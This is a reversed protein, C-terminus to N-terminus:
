TMGPPRDATTLALRVANGAMWANWLRAAPPRRGLHSGSRRTVTGRWPSRKSGTPSTDPAARPMRFEHSVSFWSCVADRWVRAAGAQYALGSFVEDYRREDVRGELASWERLLEEAKAAGEYHSDYIYQIVTKGSHLRHTYPVHHMFLLLDDPCTALSEYVKAVAPYYQGIYGTGTATRDMGIGKSDARIWQGWGNHEASEIGPGYHSGLIDTLTGVGLPGTYDEYISWSGLLMGNVTAAVTPDESFTLRTWEQAIQRSTLCPNWALRGFGYLNAVALHSGLWNRERGVNSVGVFGGLPRHFTRGTM